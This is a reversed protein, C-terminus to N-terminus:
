LSFPKSGFSTRANLSFVPLTTPNGPVRSIVFSASMSSSTSMTAGHARSPMRVESFAGRMLPFITASPAFPGVVGSASSMKCLRPMRTIGSMKALPPPTVTDYKSHTCFRDSNKQVFFSTSSFSSPMMTLANLRTQSMRSVFFTSMRWAAYMTAIARTTSAYLHRPIKGYITSASGRAQREKMEDGRSRIAPDCRGMLAPCRFRPDDLAHVRDRGHVASAPGDDSPASKPRRVDDAGARRGLHFSDLFSSEVVERPVFARRARSDGRATQRGQQIGAPAHADQSIGEAPPVLAARPVRTRPRTDFRDGRRTSWRRSSDCSVILYRGRRRGRATGSFM